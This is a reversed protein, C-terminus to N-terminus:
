HGRPLGRHKYVAIGTLVLGLAIPILGSSHEEAQRSDASAAPATQAATRPAPTPAPPPATAAASPAAGWACLLLASLLLVASATTGQPRASPPEPSQRM